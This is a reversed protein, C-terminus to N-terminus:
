IKLYDMIKNVKTNLEKTSEILLAIMNGYAVSKMGNEETHVVEPLIKEVEQAIVGARRITNNIEDLDTRQYTYGNIQTVKELANDILVLNTKINSDSYAIIDGTARITGGVDLNYGPSGTNIGVNGGWANLIIPYKGSNTQNFAEISLATFTNASAAACSIAGFAGATTSNGILLSNAGSTYATTFNNGVIVHGTSQITGAVDLKYAPSVTGIGVNSAVLLNGVGYSAGNAGAYGVCLASNVVSFPQSTTTTAGATYNIGYSGYMYCNTQGTWLLLGGGTGSDLVIDGGNTLTLGGSNLTMQAANGVYWQHQNAVPVQYRLTSGNIGFGFFNYATSVADTSASDYLVLLKNNTTNASNIQLTGTMTASYLTNPSSTGIGVNGALYSTGGVQMNGSNSLTVSRLTATTRIDGTVDLNYGPNSTGIGVYGTTSSQTISTGKWIGGNIAGTGVTSDDLITVMDDKSYYVTLSVSYTDTSAGTGSTGTKVLRFTCTIDHVNILVDFDSLSQMGAISSSTPLLKYYNYAQVTGSVLSYLNAYTGTYTKSESSTSGSHVVTLSFGFAGNLGTPSFYYGGSTTGNVSQIKCINTFDNTNTTLTKTYNRFLVGPLSLDPTNAIGGQILTNGGVQMNGSNSLTVSRLTTSTNIDGVVDLKYGPSSTGVGISGNGTCINGNGAWISSNTRIWIADSMYFYGGYTSFSLGNIGTISLSNNITVAGNLTSAGGVQLNGSNSLTVSRLTATTNIDGTVDLKYGPTTTGIGVNGSTVRLGGGQINVYSAAYLSGPNLIIGTTFSIVLQQWNPTVWTGASKYIAYDTNNPDWYIGTTANSGVNTSLQVNYNNTNITGAVDLKYAPSGTGIGVNGSGKIRMLETSTTTSTGAYFVHDAATENVQYRFIGGNVGLGYYNHDNNLTDWLVIKRNATINAFQLPANPTVTGVGVNGAFYALGDSGRISHLLAESGNEFIFGYNVNNEIRFRIAHGTFGAGGTANGNALSKGAATTAQYIGFNTNNTDWLYIGRSSTGDQGNQIVIKSGGTAQLPGGVQMIGSNSHTVSRLTATTNIDGVVDLPYIPASNFIGVGNSGSTSGATNVCLIMNRDSVNNYVQIVGNVTTPKATNYGFITQGSTLSDIFFNGSTGTTYLQSGNLVLTGGVQM